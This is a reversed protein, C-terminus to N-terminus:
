VNATSPGHPTEGCCYYIRELARCLCDDLLSSDSDSDSDSTVDAADECGVRKVPAECDVAVVDWLLLTCVAADAVVVVVADVATFLRDLRSLRRSCRCRLVSEIEASSTDMDSRLAEVADCRRSAIDDESSSELKGPDDRVLRCLPVAVDSADRALLSLLM